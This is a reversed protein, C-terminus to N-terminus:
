LGLSGSLACAVGVVALAFVLVPVIFLAVGYEDHHREIHKWVKSM